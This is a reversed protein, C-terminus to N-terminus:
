VVLIDSYPMARISSNALVLQTPLGEFVGDVLLGVAAESPKRGRRM